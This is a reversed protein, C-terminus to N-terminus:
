RICSCGLRAVSENAQCICEVMLDLFQRLILPVGVSDGSSPLLHSFYNVVLDTTLGCAHKFNSTTFDWTSHVHRNRRVWSQMMPLLLETVAFIAFEEGTGFFFLNFNKLLASIVIMMRCFFNNNM